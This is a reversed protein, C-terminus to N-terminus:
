KALRESWSGSYIKYFCLLTGNITQYNYGKDNLLQAPAHSLDLARSSLRQAVLQM